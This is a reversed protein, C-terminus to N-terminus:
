HPVPATAVFSVTRSKTNSKSKKQIKAEDRENILRQLRQAEDEDSDTDDNDM